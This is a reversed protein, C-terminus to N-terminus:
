ATVAALPRRRTVITGGITVLLLGLIFLGWHSVAPVPPSGGCDNQFVIAGASSCTVVDADADGDADACVVSGPNSGVALPSPPELTGNGANLLVRLDDTGLDATVVDFDGDGDLDCCDLKYPNSLGTTYSVLNGFVGTGNNFLVSL